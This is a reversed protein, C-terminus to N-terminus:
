RIGLQELRKSWGNEFREVMGPDKRYSESLWNMHFRMSALPDDELGKYQEYALPDMKKMMGMSDTTQVLHGDQGVYTRSSIGYDMTGDAERTGSSALKAIAGMADLFSKRHAEDIMNDAAYEAKEMGQSIKAQREEETMDSASGILFNNRITRYVFGKTEDDADKLADHIAHDAKSIGSYAPILHDISHYANASKTVKSLDRDQSLRSEDLKQMGETSIDLLVANEQLGSIDIKEGKQRVTKEYNEQVQNAAVTQSGTRTINM